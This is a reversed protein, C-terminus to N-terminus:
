QKGVELDFEPILNEPKLIIRTHYLSVDIPEEQVISVSDQDGMIFTQKRFENPGYKCILDFRRASQNEFSCRGEAYLMTKGTIGSVAVVTRQCEFQECATVINVDAKDADSTCAATGFMVGGALAIAAAMTIKRKSM